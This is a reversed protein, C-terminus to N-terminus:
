SMAHRGHSFSFSQDDGSRLGFGTTFDPNRFLGASLFLETRYGSPEPSPASGDARGVAGARSGRQVAVRKRKKGGAHRMGCVSRSLSGWTRGGADAMAAPM